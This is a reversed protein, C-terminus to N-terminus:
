GAQHPPGDGRTRPFSLRSRKLWGFRPDMGARAPPFEDQVVRIEKADPGDGRTRDMGARAPSVKEAAVKEADTQTWGRAHPPFEFGRAADKFQVPGDGRTRPFSWVFLSAQSAGLADAGCIGGSSTFGM